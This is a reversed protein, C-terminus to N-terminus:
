AYWKEIEEFAARVEPDDIYKLLLEDAEFHNREIDGGGDALEMLRQVLEDRNMLDGIQPRQLLDNVVMLPIIM